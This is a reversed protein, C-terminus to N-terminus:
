NLPAQDDLPFSLRVEAESQALAGGLQEALGEALWLDRPGQDGGAQTVLRLEARKDDLRRLSLEVRAETELVREVADRLLEHAILALSAARREPVPFRQAEVTIRVREGAVRRWFGGVDILYGAFAGPDATALRGQLLGLATVIDLLWSLDARAEPTEARRLRLRILSTILGFSDAVRAHLAASVAQEQSGSSTV